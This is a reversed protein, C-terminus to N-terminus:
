SQIKITLNVNYKHRKSFTKKEEYEPLPVEMKLSVLLQRIEFQM